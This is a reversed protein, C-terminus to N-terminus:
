EPENYFPSIKEINETYQNQDKHVLGVCLFETRIILNDKKKWSFIAEMQDIKQVDKKIM